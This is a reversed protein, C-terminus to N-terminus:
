DMKARQSFKGPLNFIVTQIGGYEEGACKPLTETFGGLVLVETGDRV